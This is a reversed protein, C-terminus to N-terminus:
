ARLNASFPAVPCPVAEASRARQVAPPALVLWFLSWVIANVVTIELPPRRLRWSRFFDPCSRLVSRSATTRRDGTSRARSATMLVAVLPSSM